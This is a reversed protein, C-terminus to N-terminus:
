PALPLRHFTACAFARKHLTTQMNVPAVSALRMGLEAATRDYIQRWLDPMRTLAFARNLRATEFAAEATALHVAQVGHAQAANLVCCMLIKRWGRVYDRLAPRGHLAVDSQLALIYWAIGSPERRASGLAFGACRGGASAVHRCRDHRLARAVAPPHTLGTPLHLAFRLDVRQPLAVRFRPRETFAYSFGRCGLRAFPTADADARDVHDPFGRWALGRAGEEAGAAPAAGVDAAADGGGTGGAADVSGAGRADRVGRDNVCDELSRATAARVDSM